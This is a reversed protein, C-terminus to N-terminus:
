EEIYAKYMHHSVRKEVPPLEMYNGYFATLWKDYGAPVAYEKGEFSLRVFDDFIDKGCFIKTYALFNGVHETSQDAYKTANEVLKRAFYGKPFLRTSWYGCTKVIDKLFGHTGILKNRLANLMNYRDRIQYMKRCAADDDPANDYIFIDINVCSRIGNEDPEYLITHTDLVKGYPYVCNEDLERCTVQFRSDDSNFSNMFRIFDPRLMGVDIDDDWPIYGGHRVAGLLTGSDLWYHIQNKECFAAVADLIGVQLSCVEDKNLERLKVSEGLLDEQATIEWVESKSRFGCQPQHQFM